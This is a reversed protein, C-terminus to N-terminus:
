RSDLGCLIFSIYLFWSLFCNRIKQLFMHKGEPHCKDYVGKIAQCHQHTSPSNYQLPIIAPRTVSPHWMDEHYWPLAAKSRQWGRAPEWTRAGSTAHEKEPPVTNEVKSDEELTQEAGREIHVSEWHWTEQEVFVDLNLCGMFLWVENNSICVEYLARLRFYMAHFFGLYVLVVSYFM